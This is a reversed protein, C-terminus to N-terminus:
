LGALGGVPVRFRRRVVATLDGAFGFLGFFPDPTGGCLVRAATLGVWFIWIPQCWLWLRSITNLRPAADLILLDDLGAVLRPDGHRERVLPAEAVELFILSSLM